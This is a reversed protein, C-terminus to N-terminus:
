NRSGLPVRAICRELHDWERQIHDPTVNGVMVFGCKRCTSRVQEDETLRRDFASPHPHARYEM